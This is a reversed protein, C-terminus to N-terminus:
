GDCVSLILYLLGSCIIRGCMHAETYLRLSNTATVSLRLASTMAPGSTSRHDPHMLSKLDETRHQIDHLEFKLLTM